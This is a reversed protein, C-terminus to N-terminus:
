YDFTVDFLIFSILQLSDFLIITLGLLLMSSHGQGRSEFCFGRHEGKILARLTAAVNIRGPITDIKIGSSYSGSSHIVDFPFVFIKLGSLLPFIPYPSIDSFYFPYSTLYDNNLTYSPTIILKDHVNLYELFYFCHIYIKLTYLITSVGGICLIIWSFSAIIIYNFSQIMIEKSLSIILVSGVLLFIIFIFSHNIKIKYISQYNYQIHIMSGALLSLISKFLAHIIIHFLCLLPNIFLALFM